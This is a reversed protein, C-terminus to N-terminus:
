LKFRRDRSREDEQSEKLDRKAIVMKRFDNIVERIDSNIDSKTEKHVAEGLKRYHNNTREICVWWVVMVAVVISIAAGSAKTIAQHDYLGLHFSGASLVHDCGCAAIFLGFGIGISVRPFISIRWVAIGFIISLPITFYSIAYVWDSWYHIAQIEPIWNGCHDRTVFNDFELLRRPYDALTDPVAVPGCAVCEDM